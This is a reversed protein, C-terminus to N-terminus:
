VSRLLWRGLYLLEWVATSAWGAEVVGLLPRGIWIAHLGMAASGAPRYQSRPRRRPVLPLPRSGRSARLLDRPAPALMAPRSPLTSSFFGRRPGLWLSSPPAAADQFKSAVQRSWIQGGGVFSGALDGSPRGATKATRALRAFHDVTVDGVM